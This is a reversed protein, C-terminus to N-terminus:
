IGLSKGQYVPLLKCSQTIQQVQEATLNLFEFGSVRGINRRVLALVRGGLIPELEVTDNVKLSDATIASLGSVSIEITIGAIALGEASRITIPASFRYRPHRRRDPPFSEPVRQADLDTKM